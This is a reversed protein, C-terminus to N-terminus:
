RVFLLVTFLTVGLTLLSAATRTGSVHSEVSLEGNAAAEEARLFVSLDGASLTAWFSLLFAGGLTAPRADAPNWVLDVAVAVALWVALPAIAAARVAAPPTEPSFRAVATALPTDIGRGGISPSVVM